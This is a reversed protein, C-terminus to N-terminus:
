GRQKPIGIQTLIAIAQGTTAAEDPRIVMKTKSRSILCQNKNKDYAIHRADAIRYHYDTAEIGGGTAPDFVEQGTEQLDEALESITLPEEMVNLQKVGYFGSFKGYLRQRHINPLIAKLLPENLKGKRDTDELACPEFHYKLCEIVGKLMSGANGAKCYHYYKGNEKNQFVGGSYMKAQDASIEHYLSQLGIMTAGRADLLPLIETRFYEKADDTGHWAKHTAAVGEAREPTLKASKKRGTTDVTLRNWALLIKEFLFNRSQNVAKDVLLMAHVHVHLGNSGLTTEITYEGGFITSLWWGNKRMENFKRLLEAAYYERDMWRGGAHPITLTLHMFDFKQMIEAGSTYEPAEDPRYSCSDIGFMECQAKKILIDRTDDQLFAKWKRRLKRSRLMNCINCLRHNCTLGTILTSQRGKNVTRYLSLCACTQLRNKYKLLMHQAVVDPACAEGSDKYYGKGQYIHIERGDSTAAENEVIIRNVQKLYNLNKIRAQSFKKSRKFSAALRTAPTQQQQQM